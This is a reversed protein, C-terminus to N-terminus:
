IQLETTAALACQVHGANFNIQTSYVTNYLLLAVASSIIVVKILDSSFGRQAVFIIGQCPFQVLNKINHGFGRLM